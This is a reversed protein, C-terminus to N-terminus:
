RTPFMPPTVATTAVPHDMHWPTTRLGSSELTPLAIRKLPKAAESRAAAPGQRPRHVRTRMLLFQIPRPHLHPAFRLLRTRSRSLSSAFGVLPVSRVNHSPHSPTNQHNERLPCIYLGGLLGKVSKVSKSDTRTM